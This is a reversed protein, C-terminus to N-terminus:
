QSKNSGYDNVVRCRNYDDYVKCQTFGKSSGENKTKIRVSKM